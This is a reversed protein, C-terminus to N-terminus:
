ITAEEFRIRIMSGTFTDTTLMSKSATNLPTGEIRIRRQTGKYTTPVDIKGGVNYGRRDVGTAAEDINTVTAAGGDSFGIRLRAQGAKTIKAGEVYGFVKAVSAWTPVDVLFNATNPWGEWAGVVAGAGNLANDSAADATFIEEWNRPRALDRLDFIMSPTITSTNAPVDIRALALAPYKRGLDSFRKTGAAVNAIVFPRVYQFDAETGAALTSPMWPHGDQNFEPDGITVCVLHSRASASAVPMDTADLTEGDGTNTFTYAENIQSQYRNLTIGAGPAIKVGAGPVDLATVKLDSPGVVGEASGTAIYQSVRALSSPARAGDIAWPSSTMTM